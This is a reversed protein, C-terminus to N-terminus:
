KEKFVTVLSQMFSISLWLARWIHFWFAKIVGQHYAATDTLSGETKEPPVKTSSFVQTQFRQRNEDDILLISEGMGITM